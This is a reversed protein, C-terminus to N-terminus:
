KKYFNTLYLLGADPRKNIIKMFILKRMGGASLM